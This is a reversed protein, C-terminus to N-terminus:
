LTLLGIDQLWCWIHTLGLMQAWQPITNELRYIKIGDARWEDIYKEDVDVTFCWERTKGRIEITHESM